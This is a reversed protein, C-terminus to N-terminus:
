RNVIARKEVHYLTCREGAEMGCFLVAEVAQLLVGDRRGGLALKTWVLVSLYEVGCNTMTKETATAHLM